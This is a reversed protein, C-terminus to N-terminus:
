QPPRQGEAAPRRRPPIVIEGPEGKYRDPTWGAKFLFGVFDYVVESQQQPTMGGWDDDYARIIVRHNGTPGDFSLAWDTGERSPGSPQNFFAHLANLISVQYSNPEAM